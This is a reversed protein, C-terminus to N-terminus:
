QETILNEVEYLRPVKVGYKRAATIIEQVAYGVKFHNHVMLAYAMSDPSFVVHAMIFGVAKPPLSSLVITM